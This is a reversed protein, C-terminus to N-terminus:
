ESRQMVEFGLGSLEDKGIRNALSFGYRHELEQLTCDAHHGQNACHREQPSKRV